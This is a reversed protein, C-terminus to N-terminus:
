PLRDAERRITQEPTAGFLPKVEKDAAFRSRRDSTTHGTHSRTSPKAPTATPDRASIGYVSADRRGFTGQRARQVEPIHAAVKISAFALRGHRDKDYTTRQLVPLSLVQKTQQRM